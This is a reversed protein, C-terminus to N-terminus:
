HEAVGDLLPGIAVGDVQALRLAHLSELPAPGARNAVTASVGLSEHVTFGSDSQPAQLLRHLFLAQDIPQQRLARLVGRSADLVRSSGIVRDLFESEAGLFDALSSISATSHLEHRLVFPLRYWCHMATSAIPPALQAAALVPLPRTGAATFFADLPLARASRGVNRSPRPTYPAYRPPAM